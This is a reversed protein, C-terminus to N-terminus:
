GGIDSPCDPRYLNVAVSQVSLTECLAFAQADMYRRLGDNITMQAPIDIVVTPQVRAWVLAGDDLKWRRMATLEGGSSYLQPHDPLTWILLHTSVIVDEERLYPTLEPRLAEYLYPQSEGRLWDRIGGWDVFALMQGALAVVVLAAAAREHREFAVLLFAGLPVVYLASVTTQYGQTDIPALFILYCVLPVLLLRDARNRRLAIFALATLILVWELLSPWSLFGPSDQRELRENVLVNLFPQLGGVPLVNAVFYIGGGIALGAALWLLPRMDATSRARISTWLWEAAYYLTVSGVLAAAAAHLQMALMAGLGAVFHWVGAHRRESTGIAQANGQDDPPSQLDEREMSLPNLPSTRAQAVAFFVLAAAIPLQHDPRYDFTPIFAQSLLAASVSLLAARRGYLRGALLGISGFALLNAVINWVRGTRINFAIHELAWGYGAISWGLGPAVPRPEQLWTRAYIGGHSIASSAYDAWHAEDPSFPMRLLTTLIVPVLLLLATILLSRHTILSSSASPTLSSAAGSTHRNESSEGQLSVAAGHGGPSQFTARDDRVAIETPACLRAGRCFGRTKSQTRQAEASFDETKADREAFRQSANQIIILGALCLNVALYQRAQDEIPLLWVGLLAAGIGLLLAARAQGGLLALLTFVRARQWIVLLWVLTLGVHAFLVVAYRLSYAGLFTGEASRHGWLPAISLGQAVLAAWFLLPRTQSAMQFELSKKVDM